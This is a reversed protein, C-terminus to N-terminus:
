YAPSVCASISGTVTAARRATRNGNTPRFLTLLGAVLFAVVIACLLAMREFNEGPGEEPSRAHANAGVRYQVRNSVLPILGKFQRTVDV